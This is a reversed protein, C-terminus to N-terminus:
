SGHLKRMNALARKAAELQSCCEVNDQEIVLYKLGGTKEAAGILVKWSAYGEGFVINFGKSPDSSWDKCHLTPFRGPNKNVWAIPDAGAEVCTGVDLQFVIDKAATSAVLEIPSQGEVPKWEVAHNHYGINMGLPRVMDAARNLTEVVKKWGDVGEVKGANGLIIYKSGIIQNLEIARPLKEPSFLGASNHTSYCGLGLDDVLKRVEKAYTTTWEYYPAYFEVCDYGMTAVARVTSMLDKNLEERVSYLALGIPIRKGQAALVAIPSAAALALFSRRSFAEQTKTISMINGIRFLDHMLDM